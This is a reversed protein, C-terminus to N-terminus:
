CRKKPMEAIEIVGPKNKNDKIPWERVLDKSSTNEWKVSGNTEMVLEGFWHRNKTTM